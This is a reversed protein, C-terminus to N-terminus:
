QQRKDLKNETNLIQCDAIKFLNNYKIVSEIMKFRTYCM